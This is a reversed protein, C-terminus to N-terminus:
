KHKVEGAKDFYVETTPNVQVIFNGPEFEVVRHAPYGKGHTNGFDRAEDFSTFTAM